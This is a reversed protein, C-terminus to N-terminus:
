RRSPPLWLSDASPSAPRTPRHDTVDTPMTTIEQLLAQKAESASWTSAVDEEDVGVARRVFEDIPHEDDRTM